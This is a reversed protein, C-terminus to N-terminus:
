AVLPTRPSPKPMLFDSSWLGKESNGNTGFYVIARVGIINRQEGNWKINSPERGM